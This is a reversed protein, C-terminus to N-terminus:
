LVQVDLCTVNKNNLSFLFQAFKPSEIQAPLVVFFTNYGNMVIGHLPIPAFCSFNCLFPNKTGKSPCDGVLCCRLKIRMYKFCFEIFIGPNKKM